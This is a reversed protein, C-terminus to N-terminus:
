AEKPKLYIRPGQPQDPRWHAVFGCAAAVPTIDVRTVGNAIRPECDVVQGDSGIVLLEKSPEPQPQPGEAPVTLGLHRHIGRLIAFAARDVYGPSRVLAADEVNSLCGCEVVTATVLGDNNGGRLVGLNVWHKQCKTGYAFGRHFTEDISTTIRSGLDMGNRYSEYRVFSSCGHVQTNPRADDHHVSVFLDSEQAVSFRGRAELGVYDDGERTMVVTHGVAELRECLNLAIKLNWDKEVIGNVYAGSDRGGHGPDICLKCPRGLGITDGSPM